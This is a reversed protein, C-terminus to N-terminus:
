YARGELPGIIVWDVLAAAVALTVCVLFIVGLLRWFPVKREKGDEETDPAPPQEDPHM